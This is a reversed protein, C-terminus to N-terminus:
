GMWKSLEAKWSDLTRHIARGALCSRLFRLAGTRKVAMMYLDNKELKLDEELMSIVERHFAIAEMAHNLRKFFSEGDETFRYIYTAAADNEGLALEVAAIRDFTSTKLATMWIIDTNEETSDTWLLRSKIGAFLNEPPCISKFHVYTEAARSAAIRAEVASLFSPAIAALADAPAAAGDPILRAIADAQRAGLTGDIAKVSAIANEHIKQLNGLLLDYLRRTNNGLRIVEYTEGTDLTMKVTYNLLVPEAMFCLPIRRAGSNQPLICLCNSFLMIRATGGARGGDDDYRYEGETEFMPAEQVFFARLTRENYADWLKQCLVDTDRGMRSVSMSFTEVNIVLRFNQVFFSDISSYPVTMAKGAREFLVAEETLTIVADGSFGAAEVFGEFLGANTM